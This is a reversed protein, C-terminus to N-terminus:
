ARADYAYMFEMSKSGLPLLWKVRSQYRDFPGSLAGMTFANGVGLVSVLVTAYLARSQESFGWLVRLTVFGILVALSASLRGHRKRNTLGAGMLFSTSVRM